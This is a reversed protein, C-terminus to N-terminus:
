DEECGDVVGSDNVGIVEGLHSGESGTTIEDWNRDCGNCRWRLLIEGRKLITASTGAPAEAISEQPSGSRCDVLQWTSCDMDCYPCHMGMGKIYLDRKDKRM